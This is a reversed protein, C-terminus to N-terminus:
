VEQGNIELYYKRDSYMPVPTDTNQVLFFTKFIEDVDVTNSNVKAEELFESAEGVKTLLTDITQTNLYTTYNDYNIVTWGSGNYLYMATYSIGSISNSLYYIENTQPSAPFATLPDDTVMNTYGSKLSMLYGGMVRYHTNGGATIVYTKQKLGKFINAIETFRDNGGSEPVEVAITNAATYQTSGSQEKTYIAGSKLEINPTSQCYWIFDGTPGKQILQVAHRYLFVTQNDPSDGVIGQFTYQSGVNTRRYMRWRSIGAGYGNLWMFWSGTALGFIGESTSLNGIYKPPSSPELGWYKFCNSSQAAAQNNSYLKYNGESDQFYAPYFDHNTGEFIIYYKQGGYMTFYNFSNCIQKNGELGYLTTHEFTSTVGTSIPLGSEHMVILSVSTQQINSGSATFIAISNVTIDTPPVYEIAVFDSGAILTKNQLEWVRHASDQIYALREADTSLNLIATVDAQSLYIVKDITLLDSQSQAGPPAYTIGYVDHNPNPEVSPHHCAIKGIHAM